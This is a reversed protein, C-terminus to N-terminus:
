VKALPAMRNRGGDRFGPQGAPAPISRSANLVRAPTLGAAQALVLGPELAGVDAPRHADSSILFQAGARAAEQLAPVSPYGHMSNIEIATGRQACVPALRAMDVDMKLGAHTVAKVTYRSVANILATTNVERARRRARETKAVRARIHNWVLPGAARWLAFRLQPHLGVLLIDILSLHSPSLDLDGRPTIVNAEVGLLVRIHPYRAQVRDIERRMVRLIYEGEVGVFMLGPGHDSIAVETLGCRSAAEVNQEVTGTGHSYRTHTHYDARLEWGVWATKSDAGDETM